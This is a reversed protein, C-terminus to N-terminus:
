NPIPESPNPNDTPSDDILGVIQFTVPSGDQGTLEQREVYGRSKGQTKLYFCVAWADGRKIALLLKSEAIDTMTERADKIAEKLEPFREAYQHITARSIKMAKAVASLNGHHKIILDVMKQPDHKLEHEAM